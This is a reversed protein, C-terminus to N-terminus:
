EETGNPQDDADPCEAHDQHGPEEPAQSAAGELPKSTQLEPDLIEIVASAMLTDMWLVYETEAKHRRLSAAVEERSPLPVDGGPHDKLIGEYMKLEANIEEDSIEIDAAFFELMEERIIWPRVMKRLDDLDFGIDAKLSALFEEESAFESRLETDIFSAVEEDAVSIGRAEAGEVLLMEEVIQSLAARRFERRMNQPMEEDNMELTGMTARFHKDVDESWVEIDNVTAVIRPSGSPRPASPTEDTSCTRVFSGAIVAVAVIAILILLERKQRGTM